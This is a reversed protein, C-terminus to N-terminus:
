QKSLASLANLLPDASQSGGPGTKGGLRAGQGLDVRRNPDPKPAIGDIFTEVSTEDVSGDENLFAAHNLGQILIKLSPAELRGNAAIAFASEVKAAGLLAIAEAKGENRAQAVAKETDTMTQQKLQELEQAAKANAKAREEQKKSLAKFKEAEAKWDVNDTETTTDTDATADTGTDPTIPESM